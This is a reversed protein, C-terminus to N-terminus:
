LIDTIFVGLTGLRILYWLATEKKFLVLFSHNNQIYISKLLAISIAIAIAIAIATDTRKTM